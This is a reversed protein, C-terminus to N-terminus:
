ATNAKRGVSVLIESAAFEAQGGGKYKVTVIKEGSAGIHVSQADAVTVVQVGEKQLVGALVNVVEADEKPLLREDRALITVRCGLRSLAQGMECAVYGGGIILLSEPVAKLDYLTKNTLYGAEKLGPLDPEVPSSGTAILFHAAKIDKQATRFVHPSVFSGESFLVEVGMDRLMTETADNNKVEDTKARVYDFAGGCDSPSLSVNKLGYADGATRMERVVRAVHLLAKSPVCGTWLCEGGIRAREVLAVRAGLGGAVNGAVIGASGGGIIALDYDFNQRAM